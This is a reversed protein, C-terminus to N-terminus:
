FQYGLRLVFLRSREPLGRPHDMLYFGRNVGPDGHGKLAHGEVKLTWHNKIDIRGTLATDFIYHGTPPIPPVHTPQRGANGWFRSHYSGAEFWSSFRYSGASYWGRTDYLFPLPAPLGSGSLTNWSLQRLREWELKVPGRDFKVSMVTVTSAARLMFDGQTLASTGRFQQPWDMFSAGVQLGELVPVTWKLDGGRLTGNMSNLQFGYSQFGLKRGGYPDQPTRGLYATYAFRGLRKPSVEGYADAGLHSFTLGRLDMPYLSQPLIAWTHLFNLDQSSTYLGLETKVQGLRFGLYDRFRYDAVAWDIAPRGEGLRGVNRVYLQAGARLKETLRVSANFGGDTFDWAGKSTRMTLYNASANSRMYGQTFFGHFEIRREPM